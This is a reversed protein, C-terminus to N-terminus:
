KKLRDRLYGSAAELVTDRGARVDSITPRVLVDPRVGVGVFDRGNPYRDQKTCVRASGGGPLSFYLPQGTSGGSPEGIITGRKMDAFVVAFDEAASFTRPSILVVVPKTYLKSGQPPVSSPPGSFWHEPHGWARDAPRYDRTRWQSTLIPQDTLYSLVHWGFGSSGGGNDRVDLILAASDRLSDFAADFDQMVKQDSFTNLAVYAIDGPLTHSEFRQWKPQFAAREKGFLRALTHESTAGAASKLLLHVPKSKPGSLLVYEYTRADLDQATAASQYPIVREAAYQPVPMGDIAVIEVGRQIGQEQLKPDLVDLILVKDEVLRTRIAPSAFAQEQLETPFNVNTHSDRLLACMQRLVQYYEFTSATKLVKPIHDLYIKDWDLDPLREFWAFNYRV